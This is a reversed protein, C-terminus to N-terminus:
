RCQCGAADGGVGCGEGREGVEEDLRRGSGAVPGVFGDLDLHLVADADLDVGVGNVQADIAHGDRGLMVCVLPTVVTWYLAVQAEPEALVAITHNASLSTDGTLWVLWNVKLAAM